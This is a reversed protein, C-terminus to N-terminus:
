GRTPAMPHLQQPDFGSELMAINREDGDMSRIARLHGVVLEVEDVISVAPGLDCQQFCRACDGPDNPIFLRVDYDRRTSSRSIQRQPESLHHTRAGDPEVADGVNLLKRHGSVSNAM